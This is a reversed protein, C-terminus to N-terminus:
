FGSGGASMMTSLDSDSAAASGVSASKSGSCGARKGIPEDVDVRFSSVGGAEIHERYVSGAQAAIRADCPSRRLCM